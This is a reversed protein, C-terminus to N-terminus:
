NEKCKNPLKKFSILIIVEQRVWSNILLFGARWYAEYECKNEAWLAASYVSFLMFLIKVILAAMVYFVSHKIM